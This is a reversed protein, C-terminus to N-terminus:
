LNDIIEQQTPLPTFIKAYARRIIGGSTRISAVRSVIDRGPHGIEVQM